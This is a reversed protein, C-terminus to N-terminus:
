LFQSLLLGPTIAISFTLYSLHLDTAVYAGIDKKKESSYQEKKPMHESVVTGFKESLLHRRNSQYVESVCKDFHKLEQLRGRIFPSVLCYCVSVVLFCLITLSMSDLPNRLFTVVGFQLLIYGFIFYLTRM